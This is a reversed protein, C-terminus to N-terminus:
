MDKYNHKENFDCFNIGVFVSSVVTCKMGVSKCLVELVCYCWGYQWHFVVTLVNSTRGSASKFSSLEAKLKLLLYSVMIIVLTVLLLFSLQWDLLSSVYSLPFGALLLGVPFYLCLLEVCFEKSQDCRHQFLLFGSKWLWFSNQMDHLKFSNSNIKKCISM